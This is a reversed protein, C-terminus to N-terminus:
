KGSVMRNILTEPYGDRRMKRKMGGSRWKCRRFELTKKMPNIIMYRAAPDGDRSQGVSGPNALHPAGSYSLEKSYEFTRQKAGNIPDWAWLGPFHSHGLLSLSTTATALVGAAAPTNLVYGWIPNRPDGHSYSVSFEEMHEPLSSLYEKQSDSLIERHIIIAAKADASFDSIDIRGCAAWDHNGAVLRAGLRRLIELCEGPEPGYGAVDGLVRIAGVEGASDALVAKLAPLNGHIDAIVLTPRSM